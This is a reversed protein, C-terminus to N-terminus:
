QKRLLVNKMIDQPKATAGQVHQSQYYAGSEISNVNTRTHGSPLPEVVNSADDKQKLDSQEKLM